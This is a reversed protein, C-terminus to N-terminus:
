MEKEKDNKRKKKKEKKRVILFPSEHRLNKKCYVIALASGSTLGQARHITVAFAHKKKKKKRDDQEGCM